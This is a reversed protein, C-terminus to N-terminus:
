MNVKGYRESLIPSMLNGLAVAFAGIAFIISIEATSASFVIMFFIEFFRAFMGAGLGIFVSSLVFVWITKWNKVNKFTMRATVNIEKAKARLLPDETMFYAPILSGWWLVVSAFLAIQLVTISAKGQVIPNQYIVLALGLPIVGGILNGSMSALTSMGSSVSFLHVREKASSQEYIFPAEAINHISMIASRGIHCIVVVTPTQIFIIILIAISGIFDGIIFSWKKGIKDVFIGNFPSMIGTVLSGMAFLLGIFFITQFTYNFLTVRKEFIYLLYFSYIIMRVGYTLSMGQIHLIYLRANRSFSNVKEGYTKPDEIELQRRRLLWVGSYVIFVFLLIGIIVFVLGLTTFDSGTDLTEGFQDGHASVSRSFLLKIIIFILVLKHSQLIKISSRKYSVNLQNSDFLTLNSKCQVCHGLYQNINESYPQNITKISFIREFIDPYNTNYNKTM